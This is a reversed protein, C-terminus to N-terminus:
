SSPASDACFLAMDQSVWLQDNGIDFGNSSGVQARFIAPVVDAEMSESTPLQFIPRREVIVSQYQQDRAPGNGTRESAMSALSNLRVAEALSYDADSYQAIWNARDSGSSAIPARAVTACAAYRSPSYNSQAAAMTYASFNQPEMKHVQHYLFCTIAKANTKCSAM